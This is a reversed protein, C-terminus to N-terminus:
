ALVGTFITKVDFVAHRSSAAISVTHTGSASLTGCASVSPDIILDFEVGGNSVLFDFAKQPRSGLSTLLARYNDERGVKGFHM